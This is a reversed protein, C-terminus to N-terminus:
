LASATKILAHDDIDVVGAVVVAFCVYMRM